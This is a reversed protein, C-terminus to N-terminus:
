AYDKYHGGKGYKGGGVDGTKKKVGATESRHYEGKGGGWDKDKKHPNDKKKAGRSEDRRSKYSQEKGSEKGHEMALREDLRDDSGQRKMHAQTTKKLDEKYKKGESTKPDWTAVLEVLETTTEDEVPESLEMAETISGASDSATETLTADIDESPMGELMVVMEDRTAKDTLQRAM